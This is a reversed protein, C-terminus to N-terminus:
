EDGILKMLEKLASQYARQPDENVIEELGKFITQGPQRFYVTVFPIRILDITDALVHGSHQWAQPILILGKAKNRNRQIFRVAKAESDTQLIKLEFGSNRVERRLARNVKDLTVRTGLRASRLGLLNLNPGHLVVIRINEQNNQM